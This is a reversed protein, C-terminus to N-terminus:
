PNWKLELAYGVLVIIVCIGVYHIFLYGPLQMIEELFFTLCFCQIGFYVVYFSLIMSVYAVMMASALSFGIVYVFMEVKCRTTTILNSHRYIIFGLLFLLTLHITFLLLCLWFRAISSISKTDTIVFVGLVTFNLAAVALIYQVLERKMKTPHQKPDITINAM